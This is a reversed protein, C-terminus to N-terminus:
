HVGGVMTKPSWSPGQSASSHAMKALAHVAYEELKAMHTLTVGAQKGLWIALDKILIKVSPQSGSQYEIRISNYLKSSRPAPLESTNVLSAWQSAESFLQIIHQRAM